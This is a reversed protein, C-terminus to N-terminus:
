LKALPLVRDLWKDIIGLLQTREGPSAWFHTGGQVVHTEVRSDSQAQGVRMTRDYAYVDEVPVVRDASGAVNLVWARHLPLRRVADDMDTRNREDFDDQTIWYERVMKESPGSFTRWLFRGDAELAALHHPKWRNSTDRAMWFRASVAIVLPPSGAHNAAYLLVSSAGKSHGFIGLVQHTKRMHEVVCAVDDAEKQYNGYGTAGTSRGNGRFDFAVSGIQRALLHEQVSRFLVTDKTDLLGHCVVFIGRKSHQAADKNDSSGEGPEDVKPQVLRAHLEIGPEKTPIYFETTVSRM